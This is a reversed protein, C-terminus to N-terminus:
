FDGKELEAQLDYLLSELNVIKNDKELITNQLELVQRTLQQSELQFKKCLREYKIFSCSLSQLEEQEM